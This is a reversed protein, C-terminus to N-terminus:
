LRSLRSLRSDQSTMWNWTRAARSDEKKFHLTTHKDRKVRRMWQTPGEAEKKVHLTTHKDRKVKRMWQTPGEAEKKLHLTIHKDRKVKRM